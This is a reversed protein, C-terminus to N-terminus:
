KRGLSEGVEMQTVSMETFPVLSRLTASSLYQFRRKAKGVVNPGDAYYM